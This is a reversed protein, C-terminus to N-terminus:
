RESKVTSVPRLEPGPVLRATQTTSELGTGGGAGDGTLAKACPAPQVWLREVSCSLSSFSSGFLGFGRFELEASGHQQSGTNTRVTRNRTKRGSYLQEKSGLIRLSFRPVSIIIKELQQPTVAM